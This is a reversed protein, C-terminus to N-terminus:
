LRLFLGPPTVSPWLAPSGSGLCCLGQAPLGAQLRPRCSECPQGSAPGAPARAGDLRRHGPHGLPPQLQLPRRAAEQLPRLRLPGSQGPGPQRARCHPRQGAEPRPASHFCLLASLQPSLSAPLPESPPRSAGTGIHLSHLHALGAMLQQLAMGPELGWGDPEPHEVYQPATLPLADARLGPGRAGSGGRLAPRVERLSARCLELAIYHFQPGRETCFYRLVNPHRDSEQLLQVERRVLSFCERLLRKVAM